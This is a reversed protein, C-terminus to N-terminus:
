RLRLRHDEATSECLAAMRASVLETARADVAVMFPQIDRLHAVPRSLVGLRWLCLADELVIAAAKEVSPHQATHGVQTAREALRALRPEVVQVVMSAITAVDSDVATPTLTTNLM